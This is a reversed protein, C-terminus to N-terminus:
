TVKQERCYTRLTCINWELLYAGAPSRQSARDRAKDGDRLPGSFAGRRAIGIRGRYAQAEIKSM